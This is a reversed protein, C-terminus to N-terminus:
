GILKLSCSLNEAEDIRAKSDASLDVLPEGHKNPHSTFYLFLQSILSACVSDYSIINCQKDSANPGQLSVCM